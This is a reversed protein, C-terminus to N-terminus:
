AAGGIAAAFLNPNMSRSQAEAKTVLGRTALDVLAMDMTQMGDKQSAQMVGPIQHLKGERILNRVATTGVMIEVAAIRGGSKKKLLTQTLVAELTESLQARV